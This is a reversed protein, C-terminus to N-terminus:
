MLWTDLCTLFHIPVFVKMGFCVLKRKECHKELIYNSIIKWTIRLLGKIGLQLDTLWGLFTLFFVQWTTWKMNIKMVEDFKGQRSFRSDFKGQKNLPLFFRLIEAIWMQLDTLHLHATSLIGAFPVHFQFWWPIQRPPIQQVDNIQSFPPSVIWGFFFCDVNLCFAPNESFITWSTTPSSEKGM